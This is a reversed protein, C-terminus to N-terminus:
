RTPSTLSAPQEAVIPGAVPVLHVHVARHDAALGALEAYAMGQPVLLTSLVIGAVVDRVLWERRYSSPSLGRALGVM